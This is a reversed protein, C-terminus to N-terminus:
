GVLGGVVSHEVGVGIRSRLFCIVFTTLRANVIDDGPEMLKDIPSAPTFTLHNTEASYHFNQAGFERSLAFVFGFILGFIVVVVDM